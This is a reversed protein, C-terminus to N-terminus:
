NRSGFGEDNRPAWQYMTGLVDQDQGPTTVAFRRSVARAHEKWLLFIAPPDERFAGQLDNLADRYRPEDEARRVRDLAADV